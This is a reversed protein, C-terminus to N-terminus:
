EIEELIKYKDENNFKIELNTIYKPISHIHGFIGTLIISIISIFLLLSAMSLVIFINDFFTICNTRFTKSITENKVYKDIMTQNPCVQLHISHTQTFDVAIFVIFFYLLALTTRFGQYFIWKKNLNKQIAFSMDKYKQKCVSCIDNEQTKIACMKELCKKHIYRDKCDCINTFIPNTKKTSDDCCIFCEKQIM